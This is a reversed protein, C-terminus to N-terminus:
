IMENYVSISVIEVHFFFSIDLIRLLPNRGEEKNKATTTHKPQADFGLLVAVDLAECQHLVFVFLQLFNIM